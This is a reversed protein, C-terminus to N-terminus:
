DHVGTYRGTHILHDGTGGEQRGFDRFAQQSLAWALTASLTAASLIFFAAPGARHVVFGALAVSVPFMGYSTTLLLGSLRGLLQPPAWRQFATQTTINAWMNLGGWAVMIGTALAALAGALVVRGADANLM